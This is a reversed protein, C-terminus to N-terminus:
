LPIQRIGRVAESALKQVNFTEEASKVDGLRAQASPKRPLATCGHVAPASLEYTGIKEAWGVSELKEWGILPRYVPLAAAEDLIRLNVLTQSAVQGLSEGTVLGDAGIKEAWMCGIRYMMRKCCLCILKSPAKEVIERMIEGTSVVHLSYTDLPVYQRLRRAVTLARAYYDEGVFPRQDFFLLRVACGRRMMLWAAVPSDIGGSFLSVVKGQSGFPLGAVGRVVRHYVYATQGRAEIYITTDPNTLDVRIGKGSLAKLVANGVVVKLEKSTYPQSGIRRAALAFTTEPEMVEAAMDVVTRTISAVDADIRLAPMASAAGFVNAIIEAGRVGGGGEVLLRGQAKVVKGAQVGELELRKRIHCMLLTELHRRVPPSKLGIEAYAVLIVEDTM